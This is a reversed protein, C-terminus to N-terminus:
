DDASQSDNAKRSSVLLVSSSIYKGLGCIVWLSFGMWKLWAMRLM